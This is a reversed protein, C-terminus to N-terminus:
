DVKGAVEKGTVLEVPDLGKLATVVKPTEANLSAALTLLMAAAILYRPMAIRPASLSLGIKGAGCGCRSGVLTLKSADLREDATEAPGDRSSRSPSRGPSPFRSRDRVRIVSTLVM